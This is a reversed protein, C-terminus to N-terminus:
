VFIYKEINTMGRKLTEQSSSKICVISPLHFSLSLSLCKGSLKEFEEEIEERGKSKPINGIFL